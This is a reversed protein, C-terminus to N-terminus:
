FVFSKSTFFLLGEGLCVLRGPFVGHEKFFSVVYKNGAAWSASFGTTSPLLLFLGCFSNGLCAMFLSDFSFFSAFFLGIKKHVEKKM